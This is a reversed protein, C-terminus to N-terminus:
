SSRSATSPPRRHGRSPLRRRAGRPPRARLRGDRARPHAGDAAERAGRCPGRHKRARLSAAVELGIFSAGIVVRAARRRPASSSPGATPWAACRTSTRSTPAPFRCGSRSRAPRWCCATTPCGQRRRLADGRARAPRHRHREAKLRLEIANDAYFDDGRLPIWEEPANGALYDKSLNPRDVPAADDNSLMVISGQYDSAAAADRGRRLGRRRRGRDRDAGAGDGRAQRAARAERRRAQETVFIKGDRQEVSWCDIPSLAPARLAEGTRLSFCAHHWPCRVTDGVVLGEALPGHYHSCQAASRSCRRRRRPGAAGPGRRCPGALMGGDALEALAVGQTLDPGSPKAQDDAM